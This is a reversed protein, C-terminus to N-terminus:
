FANMTFVHYIIFVFVNSVFTFANKMVIPFKFCTIETFVLVFCCFVKM